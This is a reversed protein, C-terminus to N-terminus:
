GLTATALRGRDLLVETAYDKMTVPEFSQKILGIVEDFLVLKDDTKMNM